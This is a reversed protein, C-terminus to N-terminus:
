TALGREHADGVGAAGLFALRMEDISCDRMEDRCHECAEGRRRRQPRRRRKPRREVADLARSVHHCLVLSRCQRDTPDRGEVLLASQCVVALFRRALTLPLQRLRTRRGQLLVRLRKRGTPNRGNVLLASRCVVEVLLRTDTLPLQRSVFDTDIFRRLLDALQVRHRLVALRRLLRGPLGLTSLQHPADGRDM